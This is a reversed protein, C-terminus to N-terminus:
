SQADYHEPDWAIGQKALEAALVQEMRLPMMDPCQATLGGDVVLTQGTIFSSEDSALFLIANACEETRGPRGLPYVCKQRRVEVPNNELFKVKSETIIRAPCVANVRINYPGYDTAVQRTLQILAGKAVDYALYNRGGYMGHVSATNVIAGGGSRMMHPIAYKCALFAGKAISDMMLDWGEEEQDVCAASTLNGANRGARANNVLIDIKGFTEVTFDILHRIDGHILVDCKCFVAKGGRDQIDQVVKAYLDPDRGSASVVVSAGRLAMMEAVARGIGTSSGTIVAVKGDFGGM